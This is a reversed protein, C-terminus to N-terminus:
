FHQLNLLIQHLKGTLIIATWLNQKRKKLEFILDRSRETPFDEKPVTHEGLAASLLSRHTCLGLSHAAPGSEGLGPPMSVLMAPLHLQFTHDSNSHCFCFVFLNHGSSHAVNLLHIRGRFTFGEIIIGTLVLNSPQPKLVTDRLLVQFLDAAPNPHPVAEMFFVQSDHPCFILPM